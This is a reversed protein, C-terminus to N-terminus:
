TERSTQLMLKSVTPPPAQPPNFPQEFKSQSSEQLGQSHNSTRDASDDRKREEPQKKRERCEADDGIVKEQHRQRAKNLQANFCALEEPTATKISYYKNIKDDVQKAWCEEKDTPTDKLLKVKKHPSSKTTM